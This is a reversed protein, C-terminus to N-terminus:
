CGCLLRETIGIVRLEGLSDRPRISDVFWDSQGTM